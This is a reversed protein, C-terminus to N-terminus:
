SIPRCLPMEEWLRFWVLLFSYVDQLRQEGLHVELDARGHIVTVRRGQQRMSDDSDPARSEVTLIGWGRGSGRAGRTLWWWRQGPGGYSSRGVKGSM